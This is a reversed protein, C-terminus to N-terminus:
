FRRESSISASLFAFGYRLNGLEFGGEQNKSSLAAAGTLFFIGGGGGGYGNGDIGCQLWLMSNALDLVLAEVVVVVVVLLLKQVEVEMQQQAWPVKKGVM